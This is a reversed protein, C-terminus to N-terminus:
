EKSQDLLWSYLDSTFVRESELDHGVDPFVTFQVDGGCAELADVLSQEAELPILEDRAGHFAWVPVDSLDCIDQPVTPPWGYYGMVSVMAAFREPHRLGIAWTGNGGASVGTLYIRNTDLSLVAQIEDLLTMVSRVMEDTAWFEYEGTGQPAVVIFPFNGQDPLTNLPYDNQLLEVSKNVRSMGHLYVLLPWEKNPDEGYEAPIYLLYDLKAKDSTYPNIRYLAEASLAPFSGPQGSVTFEFVTTGAEGEREYKCTITHTGPTINEVIVNWVRVAEAPDDLFGFAPLNVLQNDFVIETKIRRWAEEREEVSDGGVGDCNGFLISSGPQALCALTTTTDAEEAAEFDCFFMLSRDWDVQNMTTFVMGDIEDGPSILGVAPQPTAKVCAVLVIGFWVIPIVYVFKKMAM